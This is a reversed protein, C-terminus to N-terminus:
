WPCISSIIDGLVEKLPRKLLFKLWLLDSREGGMLMLDQEFGDVGEELASLPLLFQEIM